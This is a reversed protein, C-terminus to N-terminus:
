LSQARLKAPEMYFAEKETAITHFQDDTFNMDETRIKVEAKYQGVEANQTDAREVYITADVQNGNQTLTVDGFGSQSILSYKKFVRGSPNILYILVGIIDAVLLTGEGEPKLEAIFTFDEGTHVTNM